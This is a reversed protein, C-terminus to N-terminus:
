LHDFLFGHAWSKPCPANNFKILTQMFNDEWLLELISVHFVLGGWFTM